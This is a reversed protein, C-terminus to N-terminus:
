GLGSTPEVAVQKVAAPKVRQRKVGAGASVAAWVEAWRQYGLANGLSLMPNVNEKAWHMGAGKLRAEVILKNATEVCGSGIPYGAQQFQAYEMMSLRNSLYHRATNVAEYNGLQAVRELVVRADGHKLEHCQQAYWGQFEASGEGLAAAGAALYQSAHTFDLIRIAQVCNLDLLGQIWEAGDNVAVVRQAQPIARRVLEPWIAQEFQAASALRSFYSLNTAYAQSSGAARRRSAVVGVM